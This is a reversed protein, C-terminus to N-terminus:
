KVICAMCAIYAGAIVTLWGGIIFTLGIYFLTGGALCALVGMWKNFMGYCVLIIGVIKGREKNLM